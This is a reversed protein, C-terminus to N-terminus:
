TPRTSGDGEKGPAVAFRKLAEWVAEMQDDTVWPDVAAWARRMRPTLDAPLTITTGRHRNARAMETWVPPNGFVTTDWRRM